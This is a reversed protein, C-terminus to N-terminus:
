VKNNYNNKNEPKPSWAKNTKNTRNNARNNARSNNSNTYNKM